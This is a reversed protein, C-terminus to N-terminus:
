ASAFSASPPPTPRRGTALVVSGAVLLGLAAGASVGFWLRNTEVAQRAAVVLKVQETAEDMDEATMSEELRAGERRLELKSSTFMTFTNWAFAGAVAGACLLVLALISRKNM